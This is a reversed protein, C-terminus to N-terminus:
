NEDSSNRKAAWGGGSARYLAIWAAVRERHLVIVASQAAVMSRRADELEFLSAAGVQYGAKTANFSREFGQGAIFTHESRTATSNLTVLATEVERIAERLRASYVSTAADYRARAAEANARRTGGDFLPLTVTVPGVSWVTGDTSVGGSDILTTGINGALAIQPWRLAQAQDADASAAIVDRAAAYIDPRQALMETPVAVVGLEAPKPLRATAPTLDRRLVGEDLATLAVLTKILHDCQTRRQILTASAQAASANALEATAPSQFGARAALSTIRATQARSAADLEAQQIQAECARLDVYSTAVEAAVSVRADHWGAQSADLRAQAANTAARNAGFFDLEWSAQIGVTSEAGIPAGLSRGRSTTASADLVPLLAAGRAGRAARADAIRASAQALTPSARQGAEVLRPLLPDDFQAWWRNLDALRGGHPLPAHWQTTM